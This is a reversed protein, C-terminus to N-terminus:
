LGYKSMTPQTSSRAPSAGPHPNQIGAAPVTEVQARHGPPLHPRAPHSRDIPISRDAAWRRQETSINGRQRHAVAHKVDDQRNCM